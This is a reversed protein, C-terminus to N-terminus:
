VAELCTAEFVTELLMNTYKLGQYDNVTMKNGEQLDIM